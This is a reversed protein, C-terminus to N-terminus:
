QRWQQTGGGNQSEKAMDAPKGHQWYQMLVTNATAQVQPADYRFAIGQSAAYQQAERLGDLAAIYASAVLRSTVTHKVVAVPHNPEAPPRGPSPPAPVPPEPIEPAQRPPDGVRQVQWRVTRGEQRKCVRIPENPQVGSERIMAALTQTAFMRRGDSSTFMVQPDGYQSPVERGDIWKLSLDVPVNPEFKITTEQNM